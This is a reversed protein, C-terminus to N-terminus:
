FSASQSKINIFFRHDVYFHQLFVEGADLTLVLAYYAVDKQGVVFTGEGWSSWMRMEVLSRWESDLM